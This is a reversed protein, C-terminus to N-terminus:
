SSIQVLSDEVRYGAQPVANLAERIAGAGPQRTRQLMSRKRDIFFNPRALTNKYLRGVYTCAFAASLGLYTTVWLNLVVTIWRSQDFVQAVSLAAVGLLWFPLLYAPLRLPLTSSALIGELAFVTMSVLNYHSVGAIRPDRTYPIPKAQFGVRAIAARFFPFATDEALVAERVNASFLSFEAMDVFIEDDALKSLIRYFLKRMFNIQAPEHRNERKGYVIDNGQEFEKVFELLMEPPDECDVDIFAFVEGQATRLGCELSRHYGSNKSLTVVYIWPHEKKLKAIADLTQDTSANNSFLLEVEYSNQLAKRVPIFREIFLPVTVQENHVPCIVTFRPLHEPPAFNNQSLAQVSM